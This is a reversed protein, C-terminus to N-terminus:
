RSPEPPARFQFRSLSKKKCQAEGNWLKKRKEDLAKLRTQLSDAGTFITSRSGILIRCDLPPGRDKRMCSRDEPTYGIRIRVSEWQLQCQPVQRAVFTEATESRFQTKWNGFNQTKFGDPCWAATKVALSFPNKGHKVMAFMRQRVCAAEEVNLYYTISM